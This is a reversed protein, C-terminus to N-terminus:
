FLGPLEVPYSDFASRQFFHGIQKFHLRLWDDLVDVWFFGLLLKLKDKLVHDAISWAIGGQDIGCYCGDNGENKM